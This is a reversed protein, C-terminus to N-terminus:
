LKIFYYVYVNAPHTDEPNVNDLYEFYPEDVGQYAFQVPGPAGPGPVAYHFVLPNKAAFDIYMPHSHDVSQDNQYSGINNGTVGGPYLAIRTDKDVDDTTNGSYGRIFRGRLDPLRFSNGTGGYRTGIVKYLSDYPIGSNGDRTGLVVERGDCLAWGTPIKSKPGGFAMVSGRPYVSVNVTRGRNIELATYGDYDATNAYMAMYEAQPKMQLLVAGGVKDKYVTLWLNRTYWPLNDLSMAGTVENSSSGLDINALGKDDTVAVQTEQWLLTSGLGLGLHVQAVLRTPSNKVPRGKATSVQMQYSMLSGNQAFLLLPLGMCWLMLLLKKM